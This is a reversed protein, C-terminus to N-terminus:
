RIRAGVEIDKEPEILVIESEDESVAALIMSESKIGKM